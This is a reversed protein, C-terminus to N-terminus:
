HHTEKARKIDLRKNRFYLCIDIGVMTMNLIYFVFVYTINESVLKSAVGLLYGLFVLCLFLISKGTATRSRFSKVISTPWSIGFVIVMLAELLQSM